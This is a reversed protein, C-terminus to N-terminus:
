HEDERLLLDVLEILQKESYYELTISGCDKGPARHFSVKTGYRDTLQEAVERFLPDQNSPPSIPDDTDTAQTRRREIRSIKETARVSLGESLIRDALKKRKNEDKLSLLAKAHGESLKGSELLEKSYADLSLLRVTNAIYVRTKSLRQATEQQTLKNEDMFHRIARAKDLPCLDERQLNEILAVEEKDEEQRLICPIHTMNLLLCARYRREGAIIRYGDSIKRVLLPQLLGVQRISQSLERISEEEFSKRPQNEDPFIKDTELSLINM